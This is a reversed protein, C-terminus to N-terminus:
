LLLKSIGHIVTQMQTVWVRVGAREMGEHYGQRNGHRHTHKQKTPLSMQAMSYIGCTVSTMHKDESLTIVELDMRTDPLPMIENKRIASYYEMTYIYM